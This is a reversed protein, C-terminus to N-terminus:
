KGGPHACQGGASKFIVLSKFFQNSFDRTWPIQNRRGRPVNSLEQGNKNCLNGSNRISNIDKMQKELILFPHPNWTTPTRPQISMGHSDTSEPLLVQGEPDRPM